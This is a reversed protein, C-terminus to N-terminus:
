LIYYSTLYLKLYNVSSLTNNLLSPIGVYWKAFM